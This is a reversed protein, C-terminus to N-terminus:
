IMALRLVGESATTLCGQFIAQLLHGRPNFLMPSPFAIDKPLNLDRLVQRRTPGGDRTPFLRGVGECKPCLLFRTEEDMPTFCGALSRPSYFACRRYDEIVLYDCNWCDWFSWNAVLSCCPLATTRRSADERDLRRARCRAGLCIPTSGNFQCVNGSRPSSTSSQQAQERVDRGVM